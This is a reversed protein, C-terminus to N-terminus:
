MQQSPLLGKEAFVLSIFEAKIRKTEDGRNDQEFITFFSHEWFSTVRTETELESQSSGFVQDLKGHLEPAPIRQVNKLWASDFVKTDPYASRIRKVEEALLKEYTKGGLVSLIRNQFNIVEREATVFNWTNNFDYPTYIMDGAHHGEHLLVIGKWTETFPVAEYVIVMESGPRFQAILPQTFLIQLDPNLRDAALVSLFPVAPLAPHKPELSVFNESGAPAVAVLGELVWDVIEKAKTDRTRDAITRAYGLWKEKTELRVTKEKEPIVPAIGAASSDQLEPISSDESFSCGLCAALLCIM